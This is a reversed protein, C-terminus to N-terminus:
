IGLRQRLTACLESVFPPQLMTLHSGQAPLLTVTGSSVDDWGRYQGQAAYISDEIAYYDIDIDAATLRTDYKSHKIDILYDLYRGAMEDTIGEPRIKGIAMQELLYDKRSAPTLSALLTSDLSLGDARFDNVLAEWALGEREEESALVPLESDFVGLYDVEYGQRRLQVAMQWAISGGLSWGLIRYSGTPQQRLLLDVYHNALSDITSLEVDGFIAPAQLGYCQAYDVLQGALVSYCTAIGGEPHVCFIKRPSSSNNLKVVVSSEPVSIARMDLPQSAYRELENISQHRFLDELTFTFGRSKMENFLRFMVLSNGGLSFFNDHIGVQSIDLTNEWIKCLQRERDNRGAVYNTDSTMVQTIDPLANRDVKGNPTLPLADLFLYHHPVMYDPLRQSVGERLSQILWEKNFDARQHAEPTLVICAILMEKYRTGLRVATDSVWEQLLLASEIEGLEVRYGRIKVQSDSRGLVTIEGQANWKAMDGTRYLRAQGTLVFPDSTFREATLDPRKYYGRSLGDGGIYLEGIVGAPSLQQQEDLIYLATNAVPRGIVIEREASHIQGATSWITTETPGYMNWFSGMNECLAGALERSIAEGGCLVKLRQHTHWFPSQQLLKWTAPTAQMVTIQHTLLMASLIEANRSDQEACIVVRGGCSLPLFLELVSIDFSIPTVALLRDEKGFGPSRAMSRLFNVVSRHEIMVGKPNGTSGSTYIIYALNGPSCTAPDPYRDAESEDILLSEDLMLVENEPGAPLRAALSRTTLVLRVGSHSLMYAIRQEPYGPDLPLYAAGAKLIALLCVLMDASRRCYLGIVTDPTINHRQRLQHVLRNASANLQRYSICRNDFVAAVADPSRLCQAEFLQHLCVELPEDPGSRGIRVINAAAQSSLLPLAEVGCDPATLVARILTQYSELMGEMVYREFLCPNYLWDIQLGSDSETVSVDLDMKLLATQNEMRTVIVDPLVAVAEENNQLTFLIQFLPNCQYTRLPNLQEVLMDFPVRQHEYAEIITLKNDRLLTLFSVDPAVPTRVLLTNVFCGINDYFREDDRGSVPFGVVVDRENSYRSVLLAFVTQLFIFLTVNHRQCFAAIDDRLLPELRLTLKEGLSVKKDRGGLIAPLSHCLPLAALKDRWYHLSQQMGHSSFYGKQWNTYDAYQFQLPAPPQVDGSALCRYLQCFDRVLVGMSWGDSVIHPLTFLLVAHELECQMLTIRLPIDRQLDFARLAEARSRLWVQEDRDQGSYDSLDEYTIEPYREHHVDARLQQNEAQFTTRLVEHREVLARIAGEFARRDWKGKIDIQNPMNYAGSQPDMQHLLFLRQQAYSLASREEETVPVPEDDSGNRQQSFLAILALKHEKVSAVLRADTIKEASKLKLRDNEVSIKIRHTNCFHVIEIIDMMM